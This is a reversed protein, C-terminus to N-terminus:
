GQKRFVTAPTKNPLYPAFASTLHMTPRLQSPALWAHRFLSPSSMAPWRQKLGWRAFDEIRDTRGSEESTIPLPAMKLVSSRM